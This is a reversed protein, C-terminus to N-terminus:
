VIENYKTKEYHDYNFCIEYYPFKELWMHSYIIDISNNFDYKKIANVSTEYLEVIEKLRNKSVRRYNSEYNNFTKHLDKGEFGFYEAVEEASMHRYKRVYEFRAGQSLKKLTPKIYYM